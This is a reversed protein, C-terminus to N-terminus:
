NQIVAHVQYKLHSGTNACIIHFVNEPNQGSTTVHQLGPFLKLCDKVM